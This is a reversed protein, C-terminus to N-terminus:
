LIQMIERLDHITHTPEDTEANPLEDAFKGRKLWITTCRHKNGWTIGRITRDDVIAVREYRVGLKKVVREYASGKDVTIFEFDSFYKELDFEAVRQRRREPTESNTLSVIALKYKSSCYELVEKVHPM